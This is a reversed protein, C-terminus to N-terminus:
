IPLVLLKSAVYILHDEVVVSYKVDVMFVVMM